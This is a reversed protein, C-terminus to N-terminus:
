EDGFIEGWCEPCTGSILIEREDVSLHPMADQIHVGRCWLTFQEKTCEVSNIEYCCPCIKEIKM